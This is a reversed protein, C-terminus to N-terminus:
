KCNWYYKQDDKKPSTIKDLEDVIKQSREALYRMRFEIRLIQGGAAEIQSRLNNFTSLEGYITMM